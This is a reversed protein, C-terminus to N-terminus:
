LGDSVNSKTEYAQPSHSKPKRGPTGKPKATTAVKATMVRNKPAAAVSKKQVSVPASAEVYEMQGNKVLASAITSSFQKTQRTRKNRLTVKM